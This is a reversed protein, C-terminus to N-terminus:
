YAFNVNNWQDVGGAAFDTALDIYIDVDSRPAPPAKGTETNKCRMARFTASNQTASFVSYKFWHSPVCSDPIQNDTGGINLNDKTCITADRESMYLSLCSSRLRGLVQKAEASRSREIVSGYQLFAVTVLIGIIVIVIIIELLTFGQQKYRRRTCNYAMFHLKEILKL